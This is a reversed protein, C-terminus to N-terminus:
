ADSQGSSARLRELLAGLWAHVASTSELYYRAETATRRGVVIGHGGQLHAVAFAAEDTVDDGIVIPMRGRFAATQMLAWLASGKDSNAPKVEAVCHGLQV